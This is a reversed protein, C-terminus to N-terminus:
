WVAAGVSSRALGCGNTLFPSNAAGSGALPFSQRPPSFLSHGIRPIRARHTCADLVHGAADKLSTGALRKGLSGDDNVRLRELLYGGQGNQDTAGERAARLAGSASRPQGADRRRLLLLLELVCHVVVRRPERGRQAARVLGHHASVLRAKGVGLQVVDCRVVIRLEMM